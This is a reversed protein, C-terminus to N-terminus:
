GIHTPHSVEVAMKGYPLHFLDVLTMSEGALYKSKSLIAEYGELRRALLAKHANAINIDTELGSDYLEMLM